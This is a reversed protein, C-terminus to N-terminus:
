ERPLEQYASLGHDAIYRSHEAASKLDKKSQVKGASGGGSRAAGGTGSNGNPRFGWDFKGDAQKMAAVLSSVDTESEGDLGTAVVRRTGDENVVQVRELVPLLLADPIANHENLARLVEDRKTKQVIESDLERNSAKLSDNERKLRENLAKIEDSSGEAAAVRADFDERLKLLDPVDEPEIGEFASLRDRLKKVERKKDELVTKLGADGEYGEVRLNYVDGDQTYHERLIEPVDDLSTVQAPLAM